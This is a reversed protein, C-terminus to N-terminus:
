ETACTHDSTVHMAYLTPYNEFVYKANQTM